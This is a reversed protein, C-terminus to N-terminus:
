LSLSGEEYTVVVKKKQVSVQGDETISISVIGLAKGYEQVLRISDIFDDMQSVVKKKPRAKPEEGAAFSRIQVIAQERTNGQPLTAFHKGKRKVSWRFLDWSDADAAKKARSPYARFNGEVITLPRASAAPASRPRGVPITSSGRVVPSPKQEPSIWDFWDADIEEASALGQKVSSPNKARAYQLEGGMRRVAFRRNPLDVKSTAVARECRDRAETLTSSWLVKQEKWLGEMFQQRKTPGASGVTSGPLFGRLMLYQVESLITSKPKMNTRQFGTLQVFAVSQQENFPALSLVQVVEGASYFHTITYRGSERLDRFEASAQGDSPRLPSGSSGRRIQQGLVFPFTLLSLETMSYKELGWFFFGLADLTKRIPGQVEAKTDIPCVYSLEALASHASKAFVVPIKGERKVTNAKATSGHSCCSPLCVLANLSPRISVGRGEGGGLLDVTYGAAQLLKVYPKTYAKEAIIGVRM